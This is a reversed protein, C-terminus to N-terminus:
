LLQTSLQQACASRVEGALEGPHRGSDSRWADDLAWLRGVPSQLLDEDYRCNEAVEAVKQVVWRERARGSLCLRALDYFIVAVEAVDPAPVHVGTDALAVPLLDRVERPDRGSLGAMEALAPGDHGAALWRAAWMPVREVALTDLAYWAAVLAPGPM